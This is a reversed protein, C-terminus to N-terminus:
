AAADDANSGFSRTSRVMAMAAIFAKLRSPAGKRRGTAALAQASASPLPPSAPVRQLWCTETACRRTIWTWLTAAGRPIIPRAYNM